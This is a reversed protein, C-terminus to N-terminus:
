KKRVPIWIEYYRKSKKKKPFLHYLRLRMTGQRSMAPIPLWAVFILERLNANEGAFGGKGTTFVAYTGAPIQYLKTKSCKARSEAKAIWYQGNDWVGYWIGYNESGIKDLYSGNELWMDREQEFRVAACGPSNGRCVVCALRSQKM